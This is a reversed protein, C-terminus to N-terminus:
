LFSSEYGLDRIATERCINKKKDNNDLFTSTCDFRTFSRNADNTGFVDTKKRRKKKLTLNNKCL